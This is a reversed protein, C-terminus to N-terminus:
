SIKLAKEFEEIIYNRLYNNTNYLISSNLKYGNKSQICYNYKGVYPYITSVKEYWYDFVNYRKDEKDDSNIM